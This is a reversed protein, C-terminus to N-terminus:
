MRKKKKMMKFDAGSIRGDRNKDLKWQKGILGGKKGGRRRSTRRFMKGRRSRKVRAM